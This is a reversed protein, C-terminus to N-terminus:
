LGLFDKGGGVAPGTSASDSVSSRVRGAGRSAAIQTQTDQQQSKLRDEEAQVKSQEFQDRAQENAEEAASAGTVDKTGEVLPKGTVGAKFGGEGFGALGGTSINTLINLTDDLGSFGTGESM